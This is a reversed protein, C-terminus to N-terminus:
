RNLISDALNKPIMMPQPSGHQKQAAIKGTEQANAITAYTNFILKRIDEPTEKTIIEINDKSVIKTLTTVTKGEPTTDVIEFLYVREIFDTNVLFKDTDDHNTLTILM